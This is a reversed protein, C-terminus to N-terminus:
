PVSDGGNPHSRKLGNAPLAPSTWCHSPRSLKLARFAIWVCAKHAQRLEFSPRNSRNLHGLRLAANTATVSEPLFLQAPVASLPNVTDSVGAGVPASSADIV